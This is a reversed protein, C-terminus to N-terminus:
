SADGRSRERPAFDNVPPSNEVVVAPVDDPFDTLEGQLMGAQEMYEYAKRAEDEDVQSIAYGVHVLLYEGAEAEPLLDLCVDRVIGGFQVKGVLVGGVDARQLLKGPVSLCM